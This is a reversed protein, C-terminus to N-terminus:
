GNRGLTRYKGSRHEIQWRMSAAALLRQARNSDIQAVWGAATFYDPEGILEGAEVPDLTKHNMTWGEFARDVIPEKDILTVQTHRPDRRIADFVAEVVGTEGELVQVFSGGIYLLMGTLEHRANARRSQKLLEPIEHEHFAESSRSAYIMRMLAKM